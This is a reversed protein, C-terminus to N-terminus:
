NKEEKKSKGRTIRAYDISKFTNYHLIYHYM